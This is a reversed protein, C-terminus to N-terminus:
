PLFPLSKVLIIAVSISCLQSIISVIIWPKLFCCPALEKERERLFNLWFTSFSSPASLFQLPWSLSHLGFKYLLLVWSYTFALSSPDASYLSLFSYYSSFSLSPPSCTITELSLGPLKGTETGMLSLKIM